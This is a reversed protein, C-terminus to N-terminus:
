WQRTQRRPPPPNRLLNGLRAGAGTNCPACIIVDGRTGGLTIPQSHDLHMRAPDTM